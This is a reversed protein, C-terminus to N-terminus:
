ARTRRSFRRAQLMMALDLEQDAREKLDVGLPLKYAWDVAEREKPCQPWWWPWLKWLM